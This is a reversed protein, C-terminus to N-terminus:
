VLTGVRIEEDSFYQVVAINEPSAASIFLQSSESRIQFMRGFAQTTDVPVIVMSQLDPAVTAHVFAVLETYYFQEGASWREIEFYTDIAALVKLKLDAESLTSGTTQIIKFTAQYAPIAQSGFLPLYSMPYYIIADSIPKFEEFDAYTTKLQSSTEPTPEDAAVGNQSLWSRYAADYGSSLIYVNMINSKSPDIRNAEPAYHTWVFRLNDRGILSKYLTQDTAAIWTSTTADAVLWVNTTRDFHIDATSSTATDIVSGVTLGGTASAGYTGKPTTTSSIPSWISFGFEEISRWLVLDSNDQFVIDRFIFPSDIAGDSDTDIPEIALGNKNVYGDSHRLVDTPTFSVATGLFTISCSSVNLPTVSNAVLTLDTPSTACKVGSVGSIHFVQIVMGAPPAVAFFIKNLGTITWVPTTAWPGYQLVGNLTVIVGEASTPVLTTDTLTFSTTTGDTAFEYQKTRVVNPNTVSTIRVHVGTAPASAFVITSNSAGSTLTYNSPAQIVGDLAVLVTDTTQSTDPITFSATTGDGVFNTKTFIANDIGSITYIIGTIGTPLVFHYTLASNTGIQGIGFDLNAHQAIGGIFSIVNAPEVDAVGLDFEDAVGDGIAETVTQTAHVFDSDYYIIIEAGLAPATTFCVSYGDHAVTITYDIGEIQYIGALHVITKAAELPVQQTKFCLTTGDGTFTTVTLGCTNYTIGTLGRRYLSDRSENTELLKVTDWVSKGSEPDIIATNNQFVFDVENASEFFLSLGRDTITWTADTDASTSGTSYVFMIMWSADLGTKTTNGSNITSFSATRNLDESYIFKWARAVQDWYIGFDLKYTLRQILESEETGTFTNRLAPFVSFLTLGNTVIDKLIVGDTATGTEIVQDVTVTTGLPDTFRIISDTDIFALNGAGTDGVTQAVSSLTINGRSQSAVQSTETWVYSSSFVVEGYKNQYLTKKDNKLILPKIYQSILSTIPLVDTDGSYSAVTKTTDEYIRGDEAVHKINQYLGTPDTLRSYRSQGSFSRNVTQVKQISNDKLFFNNYDQANVMRNQTYFVKGVRTRIDFNSETSVGNSITNELSATLTLQYLENDNAYPITLTKNQISSSLIQTPTPNATRYWFRFSGVPITGFTGDGFRVRVTDNNLTDIEYVDTVTGALTNFSVGEGFTTDVQTWDVAVSGDTNLQQVFFDSNNINTAPLTVTRLVEPNTLFEDKFSMTGQKFPLFFGTQDSNFGKGDLLYFLHFANTSNPALENITGNTENLEANYMDFPLVVGNVSSTFRYSGSAPAASNFRYQSTKLGDTTNQALPSGFQTRTVFAKNLILVFREFWDEDRPDNWTITKGKLNIGNSDTINQTTKITKLKLAGSASRVRNMKYGVNQALRILSDRREATALFNERSNLDVRFSINQSLWALIEVKTVFESSAVWDNYEEPYSSKLYNFVAQVINDFDYARFDQNELAEYIRTWSEAVFLTNQRSLSSM